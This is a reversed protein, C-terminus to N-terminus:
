ERGRLYHRTTSYPINLKTSIQKVSLGSKRLDVIQDIMSQDIGKNVTSSPPAVKGRKMLHYKVTNYLVNYVKAIDSISRGSTYLDVINEVDEPSLGQKNYGRDNIQKQYEEKGVMGIIMNRMYIPNQDYKKALSSISEGQRWSNVADTKDSPMMSSMRDYRLQRKDRDPYKKDIIQFIRQRSLNYKSAIQSITLGSDYAAVVAENKESYREPRSTVVREPYHKDLIRTVLTYPIGLIRSSDDRTLGMDYAQKVDNIIKPDDIRKDAETIFEHARM